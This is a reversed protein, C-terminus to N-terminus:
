AFSAYLICALIIVSAIINRMNIKEKLFIKAFVYTLTTGLMLILTTSIIGIKLYGYYAVVRYIVWIVGILIIKLKLKGEINSFKPHFIILSVLFIASCRLFYFTIPSYFHLILLSIVIELGFFLSGIIAALFYKNFSLHERKVHTFILALGAILAPIIVNSNSEYIGQFFFSFVIALLITFLPELMKAPELNSVKEGKMSYFTFGNALVSAVIVGLFILINKLQLAESDLKWFFYLLPLLIIAIALFGLIQYQKITIGKGKLIERELVTGGALAIAAIIPFYIM